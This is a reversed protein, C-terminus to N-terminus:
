EGTPEWSSPTRAILVPCPTQEIVSEPVSGFLLRQVMGEDSAGVILLDHEGERIEELIAEVVSANQVVRARVPVGSSIGTHTMRELAETEVEVDVDETLPLVRFLTVDGGGAQAIKLALHLGFRAHPGGGTSVLVREIRSKEGKQLYHLPSEVDARKRSTASAIAGAVFWAVYGVPVALILLVVVARGLLAWGGAREYFAVLGLRPGVVSGVFGLSVGALFILAFLLWMVRKSM